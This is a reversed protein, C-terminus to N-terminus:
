VESADLWKYIKSFYKFISIKKEVQCNRMDKLIIKKVNGFWKKLNQRRNSQLPKILDDMQGTQPTIFNM